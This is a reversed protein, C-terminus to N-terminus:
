KATTEIYKSGWNTDQQRLALEKGLEWYLELLQSNITFAVKNQAERIKTKLSKIWSSYEINSLKKSVKRLCFILFNGL